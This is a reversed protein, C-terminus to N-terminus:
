PTISVSAANSTQGAVTITLPYDGQALGSPVVINAQVLGVFGPALGLFSVQAAAPGIKASKPSTATILPSSPTVAGDPVAPSVPGSGNLYVM